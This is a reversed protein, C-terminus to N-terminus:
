PMIVLIVGGKMVTGETIYTRAGPADAGTALDDTRAWAGAAVVYLGNQIPLTQDKALCVDGTVLSIGDVTQEGSLTINAVTAANSPVKPIMGEITSMVFGQNAAHDDATPTTVGTLKQNVIIDTTPEKPLGNADFAVLGNSTGGSVGNHDDTADIDHKKTHATM